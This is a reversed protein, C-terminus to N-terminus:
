ISDYKARRLFLSSTLILIISVIVLSVVNTFYRTTDSYYYLSYLGDTIMNVPNLKNLIPINKDIIYKMTIGMMGSFFSGLMTIAILIGTKSNESVKFVSGILIGLSLGALSGVLSLIIILPLNTGFNVDLVFISYIFLLSIGILEVIYSALLSSFILKSKSISSVAVRKGRSSMNALTNNITFIALLGGYLCTMAILTYFEIMTYSLNSSSTDEIIKKDNQIMNLTDKYISEYDIIKGMSMSNIIKENSITEVLKTTEIIEEIVYKFVTENVGNNSIVIKLDDEIYLYGTIDNNELLNKADDLNVYKTNFIKNENNDDSLNKLTEKLVSNNNFKENDVIAIDIISLKENNEIDSFAMKFFTGLILPFILTWFILGKNKILVKFTYKFNHLFM